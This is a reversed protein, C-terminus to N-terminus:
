NKAGDDDGKDKDTITVLEVDISTDHIAGGM